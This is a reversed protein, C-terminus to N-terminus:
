EIFPLPSPDDCEVDRCVVDVHGSLLLDLSALILGEVKLLEFRLVTPTREPALKEDWNLIGQDVLQFHEKAKQLDSVFGQIQPALIVGTLKVQVVRDSGANWVPDLQFDLLLSGEATFNCGVLSADHFTAAHASPSPQTPRNPM